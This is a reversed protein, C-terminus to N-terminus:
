AHPLDKGTTLWALVCQVLARDSSEENPFILSSLMIGSIIRIAMDVPVHLSTSTLQNKVDRLLSDVLSQDTNASENFMVRLIRHNERVFRLREILSHELDSGQHLQRHIAIVPEFLADILAQKTEFHRFLTMESVKARIAIAKTTSGKIGNNTFCDLAADLLRQRIDEPRIDRYRPM